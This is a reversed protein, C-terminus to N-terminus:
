NMGLAFDIYTYFDSPNGNIFNKPREHGLRIIVINEDPIMITYQGLIGRFFIIDHNKYYATWIQYGYFDVPKGEKDKLYYAPTTAEKLYDESIVREGNWLGKNLVLQGVKAFDSANSYFCCYAKERGDKKDLTWMADNLPGIKKWIKESFYESVSKGTVEEIIFSLIITNGGLYTWNEGPASVAKYHTNLEKIDTGYYAKAMHGFPSNYSEDFDIGSSMTLLHKITLDPNDKYKPLYNGVPDDVSNIHGEQIAIGILLSVYSKAMSFSNTKSNTNYDDWYEEYVIQENKAIFLAAPNYKEIEHHLSDNNYKMYSDSHQWRDYNDSKEVIRNEFYHHDDISPGTRGVLYTSSVAKFLHSHGTAVATISALAFLIILTLFFRKLFKM